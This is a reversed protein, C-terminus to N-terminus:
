ALQAVFQLPLLMCPLPEPQVELPKFGRAARDENIAKAGGATEQSVVLAQIAEVEAALGQLFYGAETIRICLFDAFM